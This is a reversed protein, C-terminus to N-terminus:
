SKEHGDCKGNIPGNPVTRSSAILVNRGPIVATEPGECKEVEDDPDRRNGLLNAHYPIM